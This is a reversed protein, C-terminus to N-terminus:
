ITRCIFRSFHRNKLNEHASRAADEDSFVGYVCSGAGSMQSFLAGHENLLGLLEGIQPLLDLAAPQLDNATHERLAVIDGAQLAKLAKHHDKRPPLDSQQTRSFVDRTSLGQEPKLLVLWHAPFPAVPQVIDGIGSVLAPQEQLCYPVDAGLSLGIQSLTEMGLGLGWLQNLGRLVAAADASGGGLGAGIPIRKVLRIRAGASYGSDVALRRAALEALNGSIESSEAGDMQLSIQADHALHVDDHLDIRQNIMVLDHYGDPRRGQIKLFWNLKAYAPIMM